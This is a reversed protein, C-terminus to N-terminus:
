MVVRLSGRRNNKPCSRSCSRLSAVSENEGSKDLSERKKGGNDKQIRNETNKRLVFNGECLYDSSLMLGLFRDQLSNFLPGLITSFQPLAPMWSALAECYIHLSSFFPGYGVHLCVVWYLPLGKNQLSLASLVSHDLTYQTVLTMHYAYDGSKGRM